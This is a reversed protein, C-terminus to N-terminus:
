PRCPRTGLRRAVEQIDDQRSLDLVGVAMPLARVRLGERVALAVAQPLELEGRPSPTVRHCAAILAADLRWLNMSVRPTTGRAAVTAPDPKEDIARLLGQEDITLLAFAAIREPEINSERVLAGADFAILGAGDLAMLRQIAEVPYLNDANLVLVERGAIWSEAAVVADATGRPADQVACSVRLREPPHATFYEAIGRHDPAVVLCVDQVGADALAHLLHALFPRGATDPIMGKLGAAAALAQAPALTVGAAPRRMRSGLGRALIVAATAEVATM